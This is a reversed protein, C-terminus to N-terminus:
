NFRGAEDTDDKCYGNYMIRVYFDISILFNENIGIRIQEITFRM